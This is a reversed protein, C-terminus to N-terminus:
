LVTLSSPLSWGGPGASNVGRVRVSYTKLPTLGAIEIRRCVAFTGASTWNSEVTPDASTVQVEYSAAGPLSKVRALLLGSVEGQTLKQLVPASLPANVVSRVSPARLDFGTTALVSEDGAATMEVFLGLQQLDSSLRTRAAEREAIRSRDGGATAAFASSFGALDANIQVLTPVSPSWPEPFHPNGTMASVIRQASSQFNSLSMKTFRYAIM